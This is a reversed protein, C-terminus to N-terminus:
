SGVEFLKRTRAVEVENQKLLEPNHHTYPIGISDFIEQAEQDQASSTIPGVPTMLLPLSCSASLFPVTTM